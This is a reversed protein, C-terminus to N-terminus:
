ASQEEPLESEESGVLRRVPIKMVSMFFSNFCIETGVAMLTLAALAARVAFLGQGYTMLWEYVIKLNIAVGALLLIGGIIIGTEFSIVSM